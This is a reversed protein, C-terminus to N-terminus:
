GEDESSELTKCIVHDWKDVNPWCGPKRYVIFLNDTWLVEFEGFTYGSDDDSNPPSILCVIGPEPRYTSNSGKM